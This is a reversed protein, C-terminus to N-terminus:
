KLIYKMHNQKWKAHHYKLKSDCFFSLKWCKLDTSSKLCFEEGHRNEKDEISRSLLRHVKRWKSSTNICASVPADWCIRAIYHQMHDLILKTWTKSPRCNRGKMGCCSSCQHVSNISNKCKCSELGLRSCEAEQPSCGKTELMKKTYYTSKRLKCEVEGRWMGPPTCPSGSELCKEVGGCDCSEGLDVIGDGCFGGEYEHLCHSMQETNLVKEISQATCTSIIDNNKKVGSSSFKSM